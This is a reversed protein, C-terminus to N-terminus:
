PNEQQTTLWTLFQNAWDKVNEMSDNGNAYTAAAILAARTNEAHQYTNSTPHNPDKLRPDTLDIPDTHKTFQGPHTPMEVPKVWPLAPRRNAADTEADIIREKLTLREKPTLGPHHQVVSAYEDATMTNRTPHAWEGNHHPQHEYQTLTSFAERPTNM